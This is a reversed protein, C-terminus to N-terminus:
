RSSELESFLAELKARAEVIREEEQSALEHEFFFIQDAIVQRADGIFEAYMRHARSMLTTNVIADRPHIKLAKLQEFRQQLEKDSLQASASSFIHQAVKQTSHVTVEVELAGNVDYTFRIDVAEEGRPQPTVDVDLSGIYVNDKVVPSEGQYVNVKIGKQGDYTTYVTEVRSTPIHRNREIIPFYYGSVIGLQSDERSIEVGLTFPMVDTLVVEQLHEDNEELGVLVGAGLAVIEDPNATDAPFRGFMRVIEDRFVQMRSAGGVLVVDNIETLDLKTDRLTRIIPSAIRRILPKVAAKFDEASIEVQHQDEEIVISVTVQRQRNLQQKTQEAQRTILPAAQDCQWQAVGLEKLKAVILGAVIQTFDAGGLYNDGGSGLIEIISDFQDIISVDFTGGGLDVIVLKADGPKEHVGYSLAAATPENLLRIVKVGALEGARQTAKRQLDNFYAPVTVIADTPREGCAREADDLLSRIVLSSLEEPRFRKNGLSLEKDSGMYRKFEAATLQPHTVLREKAPQGVLIQAEDDFGVVSPTLFSDHINAVLAPQQDKWLSILSNTTGLDIGVIL